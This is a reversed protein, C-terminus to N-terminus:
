HHVPCDLLGAHPSHHPFFLLPAPGSQHGQDLFCRQGCLGACLVLQVLGGGPKAMSSNHHLHYVQLVAREMCRFVHCLCRLLVLHNTNQVVSVTKSDMLGVYRMLQAMCSFRPLINQSKCHVLLQAYRYTPHWHDSRHIGGKCIWQNPVQITLEPKSQLAHYAGMLWTECSADLVVAKARVLSVLMPLSCCPM